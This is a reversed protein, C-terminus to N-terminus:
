REKARAELEAREDEIELWAQNHAMEVEVLRGLHGEIKELIKLGRKLYYALEMVAERDPNDHGRVPM